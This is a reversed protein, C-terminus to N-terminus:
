PTFFRLSESGHSLRGIEVRLTFLTEDRAPPRQGNAALRYFIQRSRRTVTLVIYRGRVRNYSDEVWVVDGRRLETDTWRSVRCEILQSDRVHTLHTERRLRKLDLATLDLRFDDPTLAV